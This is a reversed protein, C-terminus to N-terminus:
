LTEQDKGTYSSIRLVRLFCNYYPMSHSSANEDVEIKKAITIYFVFVEDVRM